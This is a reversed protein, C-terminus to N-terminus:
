CRFHNELASINRLAGDTKSKPVFETRLIRRIGVDRAIQAL